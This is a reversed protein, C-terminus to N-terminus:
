DLEKRELDWELLKLSEEGDSIFCDKEYFELNKLLDLETFYIDMIRDRYRKSENKKGEM